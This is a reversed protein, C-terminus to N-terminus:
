EPKMGADKVVSAWKVMEEDVFKAFAEGTLKGPQVGIRAFNERIRASTLIDRLAEDLIARTAPQMHAPGYLGFWAIAAYGKVGAEDITPVDPMSEDREASTVGLIRLKDGGTYPLLTTLSNFLVSIHGGLLATLAPAAGQFPIHVMKTGAMSNFLEGSLHNASGFGASGYNLTGPEKKELAILEKINSVPLKASVALANAATAIVALPTFDQRTDYPLKKFLSPNITHHTSMLLLVSGDPPSKAVQDSGITGSAGPRADVIVPIGFRDQFREAIERALIDTAGGPPFPMVIRIRETPYKEAADACPAVMVSIVFGIQLLQRM